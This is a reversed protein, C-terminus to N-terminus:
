SGRKWVKAVVDDFQMFSAVAGCARYGTLGNGTSM